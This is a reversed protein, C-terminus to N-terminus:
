LAVSEFEPVIRILYRLSICRVTRTGDLLVRDDVQLTEWQAPRTVRGLGPGGGGIPRRM